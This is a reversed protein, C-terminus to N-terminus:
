EDSLAALGGQWCARCFRESARPSERGDCLDCRWSRALVGRLRWWVARWARRARQRWGIFMVSLGFALLLLGPREPEREGM